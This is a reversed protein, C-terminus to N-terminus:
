QRDASRKRGDSGQGRNDAAPLLRHILLEALRSLILWGALLGLIAWDGGPWALSDGKTFYGLGEGVWFTGFATLLLGVAYKLTNEPVASLPRRVLIAAILVLFGALVASAAAVTLGNPDRREAALGFTVVIFVVEIGELFVGKFAVLFAFWDLGLRVKRGANAAAEQQRRLIEDEDRQPLVGASRRVAKGLWQLGFILLLTGIVLQLLAESLWNILAAGALATVAALALLAALTGLIAARWSRTTGMALVITFAEVFEVASALFTSTAVGLTTAPIPM